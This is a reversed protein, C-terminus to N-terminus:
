SATTRESLLQKWGNRLTQWVDRFTENAMHLSGIQLNVHAVNIIICEENPRAVVFGRCEEFVWAYFDILEIHGGGHPLRRFSRLHIQRSPLHVVGVGLNCRDQLLEARISRLEEPDANFM